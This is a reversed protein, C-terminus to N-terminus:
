QVYPNSTLSEAGLTTRRVLGLGLTSSSLSESASVIRLRCDSIPFFVQMDKVLSVESCLDGYLVPNSM